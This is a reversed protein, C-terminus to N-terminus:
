HDEMAGGQGNLETLKAQVVRRIPDFHTDDLIERLMKEPTIESFSGAKLVAKLMSPAFGSLMITNTTDKNVPFTSPSAVDGQLNWFVMRPPHYGASQYELVLQQYRTLYDRGMAHLGDATDFQMDSLVLLNPMASQPLGHQKATRLILRYAAIFNTNFGWDMRMVSHVREKIGGTDPLVHYKPTETFTILRDRFAPDVLEAILIGLSIAIYLPSPSGGMMSGSVDVLPVYNGIHMSGSQAHMSQEISRKMDQWQAEILELEMPSATNYGSIHSFLPDIIDHPFSQAGHIAKKKGTSKIAAKLNKRCTVRDEIEPHRNGTEEFEETMQGKVTENMLAKRNKRICESPVKSVDIEAFTRKCMKIEPIDLRAKLKSLLKRMKESGNPHKGFMEHVLASWFLKTKKCKPNPAWKSALSVKSASGDAVLQAAMTKVCMTKTSERASPNLFIDVLDKWRGFDPVLPILDNIVDGFCQVMVIFMKLFLDREGKGVNRTARTQFTLVCLDVANEPYIAAERVLSQTHPAGRVLKEFLALMSGVSSETFGLSGNDGRRMDGAVISEKNIAKIKSAHDADMASIFDM